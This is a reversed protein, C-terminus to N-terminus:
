EKNVDPYIDTLRLLAQGIHTQLVRHAQAVQAESVQPLREIVDCAGHSTVQRMTASWQDINDPWRGVAENHATIIADLVDGPFEPGLFLVTPSNLLTDEVISFGRKEGSGEWRRRWLKRQHDKALAQAVSMGLPVPQQDSERMKKIWMDVTKVPDPDESDLEIKAAELNAGKLTAMKGAFLLMMRLSVRERGERIEPLDEGLGDEKFKNLYRNRLMLTQAEREPDGEPYTSANMFNKIAQDLVKTYEDLMEKSKMTKDLKASAQDLMASTPFYKEPSTGAEESNVVQQLYCSRLLLRQSEREASDKPGLQDLFAEIASDQFETRTEIIKGSKM